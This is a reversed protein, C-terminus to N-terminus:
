TNVLEVVAARGSAGWRYVVIFQCNDDDPRDIRGCDGSLRVCCLCVGGARRWAPRDSDECSPVCVPCACIGLVCGVPPAPLLSTLSSWGRRNEIGSPLLPLSQEGRGGVGGRRSRKAGARDHCGNSTSEVLGRRDGGGGKPSPEISFSMCRTTRCPRTSRAQGFAPACLV